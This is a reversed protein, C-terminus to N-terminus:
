IPRPGFTIDVAFQKKLQAEISNLDSFLTVVVGILGNITGHQEGSWILLFTAGAGDLAEGVTYERQLLSVLEEQTNLERSFRLFVRDGVVQKTYLDGFIFV